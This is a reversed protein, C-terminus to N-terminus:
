DWDCSLDFFTIRLAKNVIYKEQNKFVNGESRVLPQPIEAKMQNFYWECTILIIHTALESYTTQTM